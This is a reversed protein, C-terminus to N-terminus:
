RARARSGSQVRARVVKHACAFCYSQFVYENHRNLTSCIDSDICSPIEVAFGLLVVKAAVSSDRKPLDDGGLISLRDSWHESQWPAAHLILDDMSHKWMNSAFDVQETGVDLNSLYNGHSTLVKLSIAHSKVHSIIYRLAATTAEPSTNSSQSDLEIIVPLPVFVTWRGSKVFSSFEAVSSLLINTDIVLM